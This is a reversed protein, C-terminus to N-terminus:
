SLARDISYQPVSVAFSSGSRAVYRADTKGAVRAGIRYTVASDAAGGTTTAKALTVTAEPDALGQAGEDLAGVPQDIMVGVLTRVFDVVQVSHLPTAARAPPSQVRWPGERKELTFGGKRNTLSLRVVEEPRFPVLSRDVWSGPDAAVDWVSIGGAELVR